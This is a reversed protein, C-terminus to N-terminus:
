PLAAIAQRVSDRTQNILSSFRDPHKGIENHDIVDKSLQEIQAFLSALQPCCMDLSSGRLRHATKKIEAYNNIEAQLGLQAVGEDLQNVFGDRVAAYENGLVERLNHLAEIDIVPPIGREGCNSDMRKIVGLFFGFTKTAAIFGHILSSTLRRM